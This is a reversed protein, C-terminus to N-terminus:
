YCTAKLVTQMLFLVTEEGLSLVAINCNQLFAYVEYGLLTM